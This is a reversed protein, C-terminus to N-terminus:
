VLGTKQAIKVLDATYNCKLKDLLAKRHDQVTYISINLKAAIEKRLFGEGLLKLVEIQRKTLNKLMNKHVEKTLYEQFIKLTKPMKFIDELPFTIMAYKTPLGTQDKEFTAASYIGWKLNGDTHKIRYIGAWKANSNDQFYKSPIAVAEEFDPSNLLWYPVENEVIEKESTGTINKLTDNDSVWELQYPSQNMVYMSGNMAKVFSKYFELEAKEDKNLKPPTSVQCKM